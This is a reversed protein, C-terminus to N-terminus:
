LDDPEEKDNGDYDYWKSVFDLIETKIFDALCESVIEPPDEESYEYNSVWYIIRNSASGNTKIRTDFCFFNGNDWYFPILYKYQPVIAEFHEDKYMNYLDPAESFNTGTIGAINSSSLIFGNTKSLLYKYDLPLEIQFENEFRTIWQPDVPEYTGRIRESYKMLENLVSDIQAKYDM